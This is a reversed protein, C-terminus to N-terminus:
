LFTYVQMPPLGTLFLRVEGKLFSGIKLAIQQIIFKHGFLKGMQMVKGQHSGQHSTPPKSAEYLIQSQGEM